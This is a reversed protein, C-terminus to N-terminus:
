VYPVLLQPCRVLCTYQRMGRMSGWAHVATCIRLACMYAAPVIALRCLAGACRLGPPQDLRRVSGLLHAFGFPSTRPGHLLLAVNAPHVRAASRSHVDCLTVSCQLARVCSLSRPANGLTEGCMTYWSVVDVHQALEQIGKIHLGCLTRDSGHWRQL